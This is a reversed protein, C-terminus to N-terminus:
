HICVRLRTHWRLVVVSMINEELAMNWLLHGFRPVIVSPFSEQPFNFRTASRRLREETGALFLSHLIHTSFGPTLGQGTVQTDTFLFEGEYRHPDIDVFARTPDFVDAILGFVDDEGTFLYSIGTLGNM